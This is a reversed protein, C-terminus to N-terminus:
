SVSPPGETVGSNRLSTALGGNPPAGPQANRRKSEVLWLLGAALLLMSSPEPVPTILGQVDPGGSVQIRLVGGDSLLEDVQEAPVKPMADTSLTEPLSVSAPPKDAATRMLREYDKRLMEKDRLLKRYFYGGAGAGGGIGLVALLVPTSVVGTVSWLAAAVLGAILTAVAFLVIGRPMKERALRVSQRQANFQQKKINKKIRPPPSPRQLVKDNLRGQPQEVPMVSPLVQRKKKGTHPRIRIRPQTGKQVPPLVQKKRASMM